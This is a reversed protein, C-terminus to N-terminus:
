VSDTNLNFCDLERAQRICKCFWHADLWPVRYREWGGVLSMQGRRDPNVARCTTSRGSQTHKPPRATSQMEAIAICYYCYAVPQDQRPNEDPTRYSQTRTFATRQMCIPNIM